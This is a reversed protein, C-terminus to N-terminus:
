PAVDFLEEHVFELDDVSLDSEYTGSVILKRRTDASPALDAGHLALNVVPAPVVSVGSRSNIVNGASDTLAWEVTLPQIADGDEDFFSLTFVVSSRAKVTIM